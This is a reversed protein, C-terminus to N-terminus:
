NTRAWENVRHIQDHHVSEDCTYGMVVENCADYLEDTAGARIARLASEYQSQTPVYRGGATAYDFSSGDRRKEARAEKAAEYEARKAPDAMREAFARRQAANPKWKRM